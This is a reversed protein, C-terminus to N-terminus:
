EKKNLFKVLNVMGIFLIVGIVDFIFDIPSATRGEVFSQHIEDTFGYIAGILIVLISAYKAANTHKITFYLLFGFGAYLILHLLKDLHIHTLNILILLFNLGIRGIFDKFTILIELRIFDPPKPSTPKSSFYFIMAAYSVTLILYTYFIKQSNQSFYNKLEKM